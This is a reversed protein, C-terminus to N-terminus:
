KFGKFLSNDIGATLLVKTALKRHTGKWFVRGCGACKYFDCHNIYVYEPVQQRIEEKRVKVTEGNCECCRKFLDEPRVLIRFEEIVEKLQDKYKNSRVQYLKLAKASSLSTNRTLIIRKEKLSRYIIGENESDTYYEADVNVIRLWRALRGLMFDVLFRKEM